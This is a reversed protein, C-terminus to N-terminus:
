QPCETEPRLNRTPEAGGWMWFLIVSTEQTSTGAAARRALVQPLTIGGLALTGIRLFERRSRPGSCRRNTM